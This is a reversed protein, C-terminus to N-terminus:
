ENRGARIINSSSVAGSPVILHWVIARRPGLTRV